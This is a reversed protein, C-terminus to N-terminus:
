SAEFRVVAKGTLTVTRKFFFADLEASRSVMVQVRAESAPRGDSFCPAGSTGSWGTGNNLAVCIQRGPATADLDGTASAVTVDQVQQAWNGSSAPLTAGFRAGERAASTLALKQEHASGFTLIGLVLALVIPLVLVFEVLTAGSEDDRRARERPM